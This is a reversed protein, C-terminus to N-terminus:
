QPPLAIKQGAKVRGDTSITAKNAERIGRWASAKGYFRVAIKYLTDGEQVVYFDPRAGQHQRDAKAAAESERAAARDADRKDKAGAPQEIMPAAADGEALLQRAAAADDARPAAADGDAEFLARAAAVGADGSLVGEDNGAEARVLGKLRAVEMELSAVRAKASDLAKAIEARASESKALEARAREADKRGEGASNLGFRGALEEAFARECEALRDKAIKTKDGGPNQLLYERYACYAGSYDKESDQLLCALQFRASANAPDDACVKKLGAVAQSLRGARYDDMASRYGRDGRERRFQAQEVRDCATLCMLVSALAAAAASSRMRKMMKTTMTKRTKLM